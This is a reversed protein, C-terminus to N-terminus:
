TAVKRPHVRGGALVFPADDVGRGRAIGGINAMAMNHRQEFSGERGAKGNPWAPHSHNVHIATIADTADIVTMRWATLAKWVFWNDGQGGRVYFNPTPHVMTGRRYLFYDVGCAAHLTATEHSAGPDIDWRRGIVFPRAVDKLSSLATELDVDLVIDSSVYMMWGHTAYREALDFMRATRPGHEPDVDLDLCQTVGMELVARRVNPEDGFLIIQGHPVAGQWSRVAQRQLADFEGVFPRPISFFTIM